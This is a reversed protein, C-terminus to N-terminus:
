RTIGGFILFFCLCVERVFLAGFAGKLKDFFGRLTEGGPRRFFIQDNEAAAQVHCFISRAFHVDIHGSYASMSAIFTTCDGKGLFTM